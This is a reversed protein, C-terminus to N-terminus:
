APGTIAQTKEGNARYAEGRSDYVNASQPYEEVNLPLSPLPKRSNRKGMLGYGLQNIERESLHYEPQKRIERYKKLANALSTTALERAIAEAVSKKPLEVAQNYLVHLINDRMGALNTGGTNNLLVVLHKQEPQRSLLTNFGNIGGGHEMVLISDKLKGVQKKGIGWGYANQSLYPKFMTAKSAASLLKDGYLAQDWLYLDEVTAYLAGAAYPISMDLYPANVYGLPTKEYGTARKPLVTAYLDYGSNQMHLPTFINEQLVQAYPKGTVKEIIVGLLFYGSNDYAFKSGPEFELPLDSFKKVFADPTFPDRSLTESFKPFGTYSPIGSTHTLLHHVTIKDGTAKPYDPLYDTIKGDLKLKGKEVLQMILLSTFQKTISGLRFKTDSANPIAWEMNGMGYGKKFIVKGNEAVLVSGNFQRNAEYQRMLEDIQKAKEQAFSLTSFTLLLFVAVGQSIFTVNKKM